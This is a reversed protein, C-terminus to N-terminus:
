GDAGDDDADDEDEDDTGDGDDDDDDSDGDEDNDDDEDEDDSVGDDDSDGDEDEDDADETGDGDDDNDCMDPRGDDDTDLDNDSDDEGDGDDDSDADDNEGDNDDDGDELDNDGDDDSDCGELPNDEAVVEEDVGDANADATSLQATSVEGTWAPLSTLSPPANPAPAVRLVRTEGNGIVFLSVSRTSAIDIRFNGDAAPVASFAKGDADIVLLRDTGAPAIGSLARGDDTVPSAAPGGCATLALAGVVLGSSILKSIM